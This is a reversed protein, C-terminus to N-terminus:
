QAGKIHGARVMEKAIDLDGCHLYAKVRGFSDFQKGRTTVAELEKCPESALLTTVAATAEPGGPTNLEPADFGQLRISATRQMGLGMEIAAVVTDGDIIRIVTVPYRWTDMAYATSTCLLFAITLLTKM